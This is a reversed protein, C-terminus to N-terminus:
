TQCESGLHYAANTVAETRRRALKTHVGKWVTWALPSTRFLGCDRRSLATAILVTAPGTLMGSIAAAGELTRAFLCFILMIAVAVFLYGAVFTWFFWSDNRSTNSWYSRLRLVFVWSMFLGVGVSTAVTLFWIRITNGTGPFVILSTLKIGAAIIITPGVVEALVRCITRTRKNDSALSAMSIGRDKDLSRSWHDIEVISEICARLGSARVVPNSRQQCTAAVRLVVVWLLFAACILVPKRERATICGVLLVIGAFIALQQALGSQYSRWTSIEVQEEANSSSTNVSLAVNITLCAALVVGVFALVQEVTATDYLIRYLAKLAAFPSETGHSSVGIFFVGWLGPLAVGLIVLQAIDSMTSRRQRRIRARVQADRETRDWLRLVVEDILAGPVGLKHAEIVAASLAGHYRVDLQDRWVRDTGSVNNRRRVFWRM